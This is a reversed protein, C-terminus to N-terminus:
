RGWPVDVKAYPIGLSRAGSVAALAPTLADVFQQLVCFERYSTAATTLRDIRKQQRDQMREVIAAHAQRRAEAEQQARRYEARRIMQPIVAPLQRELSDAKTDHWEQVDWSQETLTLSLRGTPEMVCVDEGWSHRRKARAIQQPTPNAVHSSKEGIRVSFRCGLVQVKPPEERGVVM